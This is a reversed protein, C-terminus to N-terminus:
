YAKSINTDTYLYIFLYIYISYTCEWMQTDFYQIHFLNTGQFYIEVATYCKRKLNQERETHFM